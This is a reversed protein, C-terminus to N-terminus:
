NHATAFKPSSFCSAGRNLMWNVISLVARALHMVPLEGLAWLVIRGAASQWTLDVQDMRGITKIVAAAVQSSTPIIGIRDALSQVAPRAARFFGSMRFFGPHMATWRIKTDWTEAALHKLLRSAYAKASCYIAGHPLTGESALSATMYIVSPGDRSRNRAVFERALVAYSTTMLFIYDVLFHESLDRFPGFIGLGANLMVVGIDRDGCATMVTTAFDPTTLDVVVPVFQRGLGTVDSSTASLGASDRDVGIVNLGQAAVMRSLHRGLGSAAGTILAWDTQFEARLNVPKAVYSVLWRILLFFFRFLILLGISFLFSM